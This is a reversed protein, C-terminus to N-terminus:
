MELLEKDAQATKDYDEPEPPTDVVALQENDRNNKPLLFTQFSPEPVFCSTTMGAYIGNKYAEIEYIWGGPVRVVVGHNFVCEEHLQMKLLETITM